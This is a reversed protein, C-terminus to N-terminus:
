RCETGGGWINRGGTHGSKEHVESSVLQMTGPRENHHWTLGSIKPAGDKIQELQRSDFKQSFGPDNEIKRNLKQTCYKFQEADSANWMNKPLRTDFYSDFKPFVGELKEGRFNFEQKEYKIGTEPHKKGELAENITSIRNTEKIDGGFNDFAKIKKEELGNSALKGAETVEGFPNM